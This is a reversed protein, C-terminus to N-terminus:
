VLRRWPNLLIEVDPDINSIVQLTGFQNTGAVGFPADKRKFLRGSMLLCAEKIDEPCALGFKGYISIGKAQVPFSYDGQPAVTIHTYPKSDAAANLPLLDYDTTAWTNEFTRDGDNDTGLTGISVIDDNLYLTSTNTSTYYRTANASDAYFRRHCYRDIFRSTAEIISELATDKTTDSSPWSIQARLEGLTCYGNTVTM